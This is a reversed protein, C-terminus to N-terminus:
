VEIAPAARLLEAVVKEHARRAAFARHPGGTNGQLSPPLHLAHHPGGGGAEQGVGGIAIRVSLLFDPKSIAM